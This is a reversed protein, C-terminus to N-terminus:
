FCSHQHWSSGPAPPKAGATGQSKCPCSCCQLRLVIKPAPKPCRSCLGSDQLFGVLLHGMCPKQDSM